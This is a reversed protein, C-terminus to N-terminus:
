WLLALELVIESCRAAFALLAVVPVAVMAVAVVPLAAVPVLSFVLSGDPTVVSLGTM